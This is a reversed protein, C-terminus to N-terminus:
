NKQTPLPLGVEHRFAALPINVRSSAAIEERWDTRGATTEVIV